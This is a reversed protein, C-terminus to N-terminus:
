GAEQTDWLQWFTGEALWCPAAQQPIDEPGRRPVHLATLVTVSSTRTHRLARRRHSDEATHRAKTGPDRATDVADVRHTGWAPSLPSFPAM